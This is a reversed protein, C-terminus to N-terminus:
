VEGSFDVDRMSSSTIDRDSTDKLFDYLGYLQNETILEQPLEHYYAYLWANKQSYDRGIIIQYVESDSLLSFLTSLFHSPPLNNPTNKEIYYKIANVFCDKRLAIADFAIELGKRVEWSTHGDLEPIEYCVDILKKFM